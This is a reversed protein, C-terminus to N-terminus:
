EVRRCKLNELPFRVLLWPSPMPDPVLLWIARFIPLADHLSLTYIETTATDNCFFFSFLLLCVNKYEYAPMWQGEGACIARDSDDRTM